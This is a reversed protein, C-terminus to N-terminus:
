TSNSLLANCLTPSQSQCAPSLIPPYPAATDLYSWRSVMPSVWQVQQSYMTPPTGFFHERSRLHEKNRVQSWSSDLCLFPREPGCTHSKQSVLSKTTERTEPCKGYETVGKLCKILTVSETNLSVKSINSWLSVKRIWHCRQSMQDSYHPSM